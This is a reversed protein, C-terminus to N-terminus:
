LPRDQRPELCHYRALGAGMCGRPCPCMNGHFYMSHPSCVCYYYPSLPIHTCHQLLTSFILRLHRIVSASLLNFPATLLSFCLFPGNCIHRSHRLTLTPLSRSTVTGKKPPFLATIMIMSERRRVRRRRGSSGGEKEVMLVPSPHGFDIREREKKGPAQAQAHSVFQLIWISCVFLARVFNSSPM